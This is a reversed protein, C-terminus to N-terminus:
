ENLLLSVDHAMDAAEMEFPFTMRLLGEKDIVYIRTTHAVLYGLESDEVVQAERFVWYDTWVQQLEEMSGSLGIFDPSFNNTYNAIIEPTDREPDVTVFVFRVNEADSALRESIQKYKAMTAPCFDPCNAYGFFVLVVKGQQESMRFLTGDGEALEFDVAPPSPEIASGRFSRANGLIQLAIFLAVFAILAGGALVFLNKPTKM